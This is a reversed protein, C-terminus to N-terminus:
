ARGHLGETEASLRVWREPQPRQRSARAAREVERSLYESLLVSLEELGERLEESRDNILDERLCRRLSNVWTVQSITDFSKEQLRSRGGAGPVNREPKSSDGAPCMRELKSVREPPLFLDASIQERSLGLRKALMVAHEYDHVSYRRGHSANATMARRFLEADDPVDELSCLAHTALERRYATLRHFGDIVRLSKACARIPPFKAGARLAERFEEVTSGDVAKRPYLRYDEVLDGLPIAKLTPQQGAM